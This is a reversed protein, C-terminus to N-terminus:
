PHSSFSETSIPILIIAFENSGQAKQLTSHIRCDRKTLWWCFIVLNGRKVANGECNYNSFLFLAEMRFDKIIISVIDKKRVRIM